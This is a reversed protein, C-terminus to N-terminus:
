VYRKFKNYFTVTSMMLNPVDIGNWKNKTEIGNDYLKIIDGCVNIVEELTYDKDKQDFWEKIHNPVQEVWKAGKKANANAM